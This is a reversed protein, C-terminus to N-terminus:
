PLSIKGADEGGIPDIKLLVIMTAGEEGVLEKSGDDDIHIAPEKHAWAGAGSGMLVWISYFSTYEM